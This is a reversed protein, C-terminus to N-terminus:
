LDHGIAEHIGTASAGSTAGIAISTLIDNGPFADAGIVFSIVGLSSGICICILPIWKTDLRTKKIAEAIVYVITTIYSVSAFGEMM